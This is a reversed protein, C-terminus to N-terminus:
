IIILLFILDGTSDSTRMVTTVFLETKQSIDHQFDVSTESSMDVEDEPHFLVGLFRQKSGAEHQNIAQSM